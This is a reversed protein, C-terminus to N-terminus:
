QKDLAHIVRELQNTIIEKLAETSEEQEPILGRPRIDWPEEHNSKFATGKTKYRAKGLCEERLVSFKESRGFAGHNKGSHSRGQSGWPCSTQRRQARM